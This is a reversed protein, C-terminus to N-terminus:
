RAGRRAVTKFNLYTAYAKWELSALLYKMVSTKASGWRASIGVFLPTKAKLVLKRISDIQKKHGLDEIDLTYKDNNFVM